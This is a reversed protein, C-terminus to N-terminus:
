HTSWSLPIITAAPVRCGTVLAPGFRFRRVLGAASQDLGPHGTSRILRTQIPVGAADILVFYASSVDVGRDRLEPPYARVIQRAIENRNLIELRESIVIVRHNRFDSDSILTRLSDMGSPSRQEVGITSDPCVPVDVSANNVSENLSRGCSTASLILVLAALRRM